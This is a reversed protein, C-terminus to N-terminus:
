FGFSEEVYQDDITPSKKNMARLLQNTPADLLKEAQVNSDVHPAIHDMFWQPIPSVDTPLAISRLQFDNGPKLYYVRIKTGDVIDQSIKDDFKQKVLQYNIAAMAHGSIRMNAGTTKQINYKEIAEAMKKITKPLGVKLIDDEEDIWSKLETRLNIITTSFSRYDDTKLLHEFASEIKSGIERPVTTKKIALGMVKMEDVPKGKMDVVHMMYTKRGAFLARATVIERAVGIIHSTADSSFFREKCLQPLSANVEKAFMDAREIAQEKNSAYTRFMCSNHVIIDNAVFWPFAADDMVIDYVWEGQTPVEEISVIKEQQHTYGM